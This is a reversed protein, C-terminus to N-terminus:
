ADKLPEWSFVTRYGQTNERVPAKKEVDELEWSDWGKTFSNLRFKVLPASCGPYHIQKWVKVCPSWLDKQSNKGLRQGIGITLETRIKPLGPGFPFGM